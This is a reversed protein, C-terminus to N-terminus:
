EDNREWVDAYADQAAVQHVLMLCVITRM